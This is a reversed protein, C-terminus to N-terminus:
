LVIDQFGMEKITGDVIKVGLGHEEEWACEMLLGIYESWDDGDFDVAKEYRRALQTYLDGPYGRNSPVQEMTIAIEKLADSFSTDRQPRYPEPALRLRASGFGYHQTVPGDKM